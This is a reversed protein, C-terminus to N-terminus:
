SSVVPCKMVAGGKADPIVAIANEGSEFCHQDTWISPLETIMATALPDTKFSHFM